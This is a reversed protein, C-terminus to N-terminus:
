PISIEIIDVLVVGHRNRRAPVLREHWSDVYPISLNKQSGSLLGSLRAQSKAVDARVEEALRGYKGASIANERAVRSENLRPSSSDFGWRGEQEALTGPDRQQVRELFGAHNQRDAIHRQLLQIESAQDVGVIRAHLRVFATTREGINRGDAYITIKTTERSTKEFTIRYDHQATTIGPTGKAIVKEIIARQRLSQFIVPDRLRKNLANCMAPCPHKERHAIDTLIDISAHPNRAVALRVNMDADSALLRLLDLDGLRKALVAGLDPGPQLRNRAIAALTAQDSHPNGAVANQVAQEQDVALQRLLAPNRSVSGVAQRIYTEPSVAFRVLMKEPLRGSLIVAHLARRDPHTLMKILTTPMTHPHRAILSITMLSEDLAWADLVDPTADKRSFLEFGFDAEQRWAAALTAVKAFPTHSNVLLEWSVGYAYRDPIRRTLVADAMEELVRPDTARRITSMIEISDAANNVEIETERMIREKM